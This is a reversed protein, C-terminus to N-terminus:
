GEGRHGEGRHGEGRHIPFILTFVSGQGPQSALKVQGGHASLIHKVLSLGLGSGRSGLARAEKTRYYGEWIRKQDEPSIGVGRDAVAIAVGGEDRSVKLSLQRNEASYKVSNELLNIVAQSVADADARVNPLGREVELSHSFGKEELHPRYREYTVRIIEGLDSPSLEYSKKGAEISAFNLVNSILHTLRESERVITEYYRKRQGQDEVRELLLTEGFLRILALPTKLEHSVNAVFETKMRSLAMERRLGRFFTFLGLPLVLALFAILIAALLFPRQAKGVLDSWVEPDIGIRLFARDGTLSTLPM